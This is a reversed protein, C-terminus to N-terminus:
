ICLANWLLQPAILEEDGLGGGGELGFVLLDVHGVALPVSLAHEEGVHLEVILFLRLPICKDGVTCLVVQVNRFGVHAWLLEHESVQLCRSEIVVLRM